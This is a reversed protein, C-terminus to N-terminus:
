LAETVDHQDDDDFAGASWAARARVIAPVFPAADVDICLKNVDQAVLCLPCNLGAHGERWKM